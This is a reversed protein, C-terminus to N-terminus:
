NDVSPLQYEKPAIGLLLETIVEFAVGRDLLFFAAFPAGHLKSLVLAAALIAPNMITDKLFLSHHKVYETLFNEPNQALEVAPFHGFEYKAFILGGEVKSCGSLM